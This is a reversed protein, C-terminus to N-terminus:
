EEKKKVDAYNRIKTIEDLLLKNCRILEQNESAVNTLKDKVDKYDTDKKLKDWADKTKGLAVLITTVVGFIAVLSPMWISVYELVIRIIDEM